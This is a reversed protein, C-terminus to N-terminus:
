LKNFILSYTSSVVAILLVRLYITPDIPVAIATTKIAIAPPIIPGLWTDKFTNASVKKITIKLIM